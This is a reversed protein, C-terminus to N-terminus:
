KKSKKGKRKKLYREVYFKEAADDKPNNWASEMAAMSWLDADSMESLKKRKM